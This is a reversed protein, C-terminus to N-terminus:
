KIQKGFVEIPSQFNIVSFPTEALHRSIAILTEPNDFLYFNLAVKYDNMVGLIRRNNTPKISYEQMKDIELNVKERNMGMLQLFLELDSTFRAFLTDIPSAKTFIPLLSIANTFLVLHYPKKVIYDCYWEGLITNGKLEVSSFDFGRKIIKQTCRYIVM